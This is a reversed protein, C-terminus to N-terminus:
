LRNHAYGRAMLHKWKLFAFSAAFVLNLALIMGSTEVVLYYSQAPVYVLGMLSSNLGLLLVLVASSALIALFHEQTRGYIRFLVGAILLM